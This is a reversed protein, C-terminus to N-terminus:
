PRKNHRSRNGGYKVYWFAIAEAITSGAIAGTPISIALSGGALWGVLAGLLAGLLAGTFLSVLAITVVALLMLKEFIELM